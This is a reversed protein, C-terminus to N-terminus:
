EERLVQAPDLSRTRLAPGLVSATGVALLILPVLVFTLPDRPAVGYLLGEFVRGILWFVVMGVGTGAAVPLLGEIGVRRAVAKSSAGLALRIGLARRRRRAAHATVGWVGVAGLLLATMGFLTLLSTFFRPRQVSRGLADTLPSFDLLGISPDVSAVAATVREAAAAADGSVRVAYSRRGSPVQAFPLYVESMSADSLTTQRVDEVVGVIRVRTGSGGLVVEQDLPVVGSFAEQVATENIVAVLDTEEADTEALGRGQRLEMGMAAFYGPSVSRFSVSVADDQAVDLARVSSYAGGSHMPLITTAGVELVGTTARLAFEIEGLAAAREEPSFGGSPFRPSFVLVGEADFGPDEALLASYSRVTLTAAGVLVVTLAVQGAVLLRGVPLGKSSEDGTGRLVRAPSDRRSQIIPGAWSLVIAAATAALSFGIISTDFTIGRTRPLVEPLATEFAGLLLWAIAMGAAGGLSGLVMAETLVLRGIRSGAAGLARRVAMERARSRGHALLLNSLNGCAILLVLGVALLAPFLLRDAGDTLFTRLPVVDIAAVTEPDLTQGRIDADYRTFLTRMEDRAQELSVGPRLRANFAMANGIDPHEEDLNIPAWVEWDEEAPQHGRPLVGIVTFPVGSVRVERGVIGPDAGWRRQWLDWSILLVDSATGSTDSERFGRGLFPDIGLMRFHNWQVKGGRVPEVDPGDEFTYTRRGWGAMESFVTANEQMWLVQTRNTYFLADPWVRVLEDSDRYPLDEFVVADAVTFLAVNVGLGLALTSVVGLALTWRRGLGRFAYRLDMTWGDMGVGQGRGQVGSRELRRLHGVAGAAQRVYWADLAARSEGASRRERYEEELDGLAAEAEAGRLSHFLFRVVARATSGPGDPVSRM